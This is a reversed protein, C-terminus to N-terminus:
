IYRSIIKSGIIIGSSIFSTAMIIPSNIIIGVTGISISGVLVGYTINNYREYNIINIINNNATSINHDIHDIKSNINDIKCNQNSLLDNSIKAENMINHSIAIINDLKKDINKNIEIIDM